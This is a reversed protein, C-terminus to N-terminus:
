EIEEIFREIRMTAEELVPIDLTYAIRIYDTYKEGYSVGPVVAVHEKELLKYAFSLGDMGTDHINVFLYFAGQPKTCHIKNISNISNYLYDRRQAFVKQIATNDSCLKYAAIGAYQSPLPACAAVNEQMKTMNAIMQEPAIAYGLRYGTMSFRKSLSDILITRDRMDHMNIISQHENEYILTRYVEDSIISINNKKAVDAIVTLSDSNLIAGTPNCPTNIIIAVTKNTVANELQDKNCQFGSEEDTYVIVPNGGCMRIMQVYNVYYPALIIVEDGPDILSSLSLYLAEMGGVTVIIEKEPNISLGYETSFQEGIAKRLELLGANASYRTKGAKIADIAANRIREDPILDPDGLTLDIVDKYEKAMNFLKRTLSPEICKAKQSIKM